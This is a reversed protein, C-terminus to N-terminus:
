KLLPKSKAIENRLDIISFNCDEKLAVIKKLANKLAKIEEEQEKVKNANLSSPSIGFLICKYLDILEPRYKEVDPFVNDRGHILTSHKRNVEATIIEQSLYTTELALKYYIARIYTAQRDKAETRIDIGTENRLTKIIDRLHTLGQKRGGFIITKM